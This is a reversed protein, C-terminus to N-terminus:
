RTRSRARVRRRTSASRRATSCSRACRAARAGVRRRRAASRHDDNLNRTYIRVDDDHRHVQIRAGDLKWEVSASDSTTSRPPSTPRAAPSCRSCAAAWRSGSTTCDPRARPSRSSRRGPRPRGVVDRGPPRARRAGVRRKAVADAMLGALAGQRLEGVLLRRLFDLEEPRPGTSCTACSTAPSRGDLRQRDDDQIRDLARDVDAITLSPAAAPTVELNFVTAWGVGIRGQRAEGTLFGVAPEIEDPALRGLLEALAAVKTSRARTSAVASSTAVLGRAARRWHARDRGAM